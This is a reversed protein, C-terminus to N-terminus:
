SNLLPRRRYESWGVMVFAQVLGAVPAGFLAGWVGFAETGAVLAVLAVAPHIGVARGILRPGVVDGEIVHVVVFYGLVVLALVWGQFLAIVVCLAGSILVGLVPVFEMFFALVGLLVAYHVRLAAMGGGVLIGVLVAMALTGRVYGGIVQNVVAVLVGIRRNTEGAPVERHLWRALAPGSATLYVSLILMLIVDLLLSATTVIAGPAGGALQSAASRLLTVAAAELSNLDSATVGWPSLFALVQPQLQRAREFYSPLKVVLIHVQASATVVVLGLLAMVVVFGILYAVLVAVLRPMIRNLLRVVPTLAYAIVAGLVLVLVAGAVHGLLWGGVVVVALWALITLPLLLAASWRSLHTEVM